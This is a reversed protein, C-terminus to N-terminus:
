QRGTLNTSQCPIPTKTPDARPWASPRPFWTCRQADLSGVGGGSRLRARRSRARSNDSRCGAGWAKILRLPSSARCQGSVGDAATRASFGGRRQKKTGYSVSSFVVYIRGASDTRVACPVDWGQTEHDRHRVVVPARVARRSPGSGGGFKAWTSDGVRAWPSSHRRYRLALGLLAYRTQTEASNEDADHGAEACLDEGRADSHKVGWSGCRAVADASAAWICLKDSHRQEPLGAAHCVLEGPRHCYWCICLLIM